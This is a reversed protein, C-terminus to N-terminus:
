GTKNLQEPKEVGSPEPNVVAQAKANTEEALKRMARMTAAPYDKALKAAETMEIFGPKAELLMQYILQPRTTGIAKAFEGIVRKTDDDMPISMRKMEAM